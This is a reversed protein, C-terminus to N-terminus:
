KLDIYGKLRFYCFILKLKDYWTCQIYMFFLQLVCKISHFNKEFQCSAALCTSSTGVSCWPILSPHITPTSIGHRNFIQPTISNRRKAHTTAWAPIPCVRSIMAIDATTQTVVVNDNDAMDYTGRGRDGYSITSKVFKHNLNQFLVFPSTLPPPM